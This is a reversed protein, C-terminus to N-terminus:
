KKMLHFAFGGIEDAFYIAKTVGKDDTKRSSENFRIGRTSLHAVAREVSNTKIGIHGNTGLFPSKMCEVASGAFDSSNGPKYAFGFLSCIAKATEAAKDANECNIGVHAIEFGLMTNVAERTLATIAAFDGTNILEPKVMWSGGCAIVKSFALYDNMNAANVGGTPMFKLATYPGSVAKLFGIGGSQE